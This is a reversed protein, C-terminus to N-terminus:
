VQILVAVSFDSDTAKMRGSIIVELALILCDLDDLDM